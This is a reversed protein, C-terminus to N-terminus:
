GKEAEKALKLVSKELLRKIEIRILTKEIPNSLTEVLLGSLMVSDLDEFEIHAGRVTKLIWKDSTLRKWDNIHESIGGAKSKENFTKIKHVLESVQIQFDPASPKAYCHEQQVSVKAAKTPLGSITSCDGAAKRNVSLGLKQIFFAQKGTKRFMERKLTPQYRQTSSQGTKQKM